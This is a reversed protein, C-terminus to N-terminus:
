LLCGTTVWDGKGQVAHWPAARRTQTKAKGTEKTLEDTWMKQAVAHMDQSWSGLKESRLFSLFSQRTKHTDGQPNGCIM